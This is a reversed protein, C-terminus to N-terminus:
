SSQTPSRRSRQRLFIALAAAAVVVVLVVELTLSIPLSQSNYKLVEVSVLTMVRVSRTEVGVALSYNGPEANKSITFQAQASVPGGGLQLNNPTFTASADGPNYSGWAFFPNGNEAFSLTSGVQLPLTFQDGQNVVVSASPTTVTIPITANAPVTGINNGSWEAFWIDGSPALALWLTSSIPGTPIPFEVMTQTEPVFYGISNGGHEAFWVRGTKDIALDNVLSIPYVDSPPFHTTYKTTTRTQPNFKLIWNGGHDAVWVIGQADIAIGVPSSVTESATNGGIPYEVFTQTIPNFEGVQSAYAETFWLNGQADFALDAPGSMNTPVLYERLSNLSPDYVGIKNGLLETFWIKGREDSQLRLPFSSITPLAIRTFNKTAPNFRIISGHGGSVIAGGPSVSGKGSYHTFWINGSQDAIVGWMDGVWPVTYEQFSQNLPNFMALKSANSETFWVNGTGDVTIALPAANPTPVHYETIYSPPISQGYARASGSMGALTTLMVLFLAVLVQSFRRTVSPKTRIM